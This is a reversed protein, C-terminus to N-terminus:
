EDSGFSQFMKEMKQLRLEHDNVKKIIDRKFIDELPAGTVAAKIEKVEDVRLDKELSELLAKKAFTARPVQGRLLDLKATEEDSLFLNVRTM